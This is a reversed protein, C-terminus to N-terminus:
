FEKPLWPAKPRKYSKMYDRVLDKTKDRAAFKDDGADRYDDYRTKNHRVYSAVMSDIFLPNSMVEAEVNKKVIRTFCEHRVHKSMSPYNTILVGTVANKPIVRKAETSM